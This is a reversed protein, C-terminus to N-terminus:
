DPCRRAPTVLVTPMSNLPNACVYVGDGYVRSVNEQTLVQEPPGDARMQGDHVLVLRDCFQAALNLDHLVALAALGRDCRARVVEMVQAQHHPDLHSTPEDLLLVEPTQALARAVVVRQREGGSLSGVLRDALHFVGADRMAAASIAHDRQGESQFFGLFPTRGMLVIERVTFAEPLSPSQTVVALRKALQTRGLRRTDSGGLRVEGSAPTLTGSIGKLLTSKGSGNPGIVGVLEGRRVTLSADRVVQREGYGLTIGRVLLAPEGPEARTVFVGNITTDRNAGMPARDVTELM